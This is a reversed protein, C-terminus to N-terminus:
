KMQYLQNRKYNWTVIQRLIFLFILTLHNLKNFIGRIIERLRKQHINANNRNYFNFIPPFDIIKLDIILKFVFKHFRYMMWKAIIFWFINIKMLITHFQLIFLIFLM